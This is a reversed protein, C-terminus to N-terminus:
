ENLKNNENSKSINNTANKTKQTNQAGTSAHVQNILTLSTGGMVLGLAAAALSLRKINTKM